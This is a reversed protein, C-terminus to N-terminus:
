NSKIPVRTHREHLFQMIAKPRYKKLVANLTQRLYKRRWFFRNSKVAQCHWYVLNDCAIPTYGAMVIAKCAHAGIYGAEGIILIPGQSNKISNMINSM